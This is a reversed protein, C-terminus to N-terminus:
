AALSLHERLQVGISPSGFTYDPGNGNRGYRLDRGILRRANVGTHSHDAGPIAAIRGIVDGKRIRRGTEPVPTALHGFWYELDSAGRAFFADGGASGSQDFVVIDEPALVTKGASWGTDVAPWVSGDRDIGDTNHTLALDLLAPAGAHRPGLRPVNSPKPITPLKWLRYQQRRYADLYLWLVNWTAQGIAGTPEIGEAPQIVKRLAEALAPGYDPTFGTIPRPLLNTEYRHVAWKAIQVDKGRTPGKPHGIPYMPRKLKPAM